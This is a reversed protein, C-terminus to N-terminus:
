EDGGESLAELATYFSDKADAAEQLSGSCAQVVAADEGCHKQRGGSTNSASSSAGGGSNGFQSSTDPAATPDGISSSSRRSSSDDSESYRAECLGSGWQRTLRIGALSESVASVDLTDLGPFVMGTDKNVTSSPHLASTPPDAVGAFAAPQGATTSTATAWGLYAQTYQLPPVYQPRSPQQAVATSGQLNDTLPATDGPLSHLRASDKAGQKAKVLAELQAQVQQQQQQAAEVPQEQQLLLQSQLQQVRQQLSSIISADAGHQQQLHSCEASLKGVRWEASSARTTAAAAADAQKQLLAQTNALQQQLIAYSGTSAYPQKRAPKSRTAKRSHQAPQQQLPDIQPAPAMDPVPQAAAASASASAALTQQAALLESATSAQLSQEVALSAQLSANEIEMKAAREQLDKITSAAQTAATEQQQKCEELQQTLSNCHEALQASVCREAAALKMANLAARHMSQLQQTLVDVTEQLQAVTSDADCLQALLLETEAQRSQLQQHASTLASSSSGHRQHEAALAAAAQEERQTTLQHAAREQHLSDQLAAIEHKSDELQQQAAKLAVELGASQKAAANAEGKLTQYAATASVRATQTKTVRDLQLTLSSVKDALAAADSTKVTLQQKLAAVRARLVSCTAQSSELDAALQQEKLQKSPSPTFQLSSRVHRPLPSYKDNYRLFSKDAALSAASCTLPSQHTKKQGM